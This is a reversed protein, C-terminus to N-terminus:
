SEFLPEKGNSLRCIPSHQNHNVALPALINPDDTGPSDRAALPFEIFFVTLCRFWSSIFDSYSKADM